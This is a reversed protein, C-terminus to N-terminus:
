RNDEPTDHRRRGPRAEAQAGAQAIQLQTVATEIKELKGFIKALEDRSVYRIALEARLEGIQKMGEALQTIEADRTKSALEIERTRDELRAVRTDSEKVKERLFWSITGLLLMFVGSIAAAILSVMHPEM